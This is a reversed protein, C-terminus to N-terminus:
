QGELSTAKDHESLDHIRENLESFKWVRVPLTRASVKAIREIFESHLDDDDPCVIVLEAENRVIDVEASLKRVKESLVPVTKPAHIAAQTVEWELAHLRQTKKNIVNALRTNLLHVQTVIENVDPKGRLVTGFKWNHFSKIHTGESIPSYNKYWHGKLEMYLCLNRLPVGVALTQGAEHYISNLTSDLAASLKEEFDKITYRVTDLSQVNFQLIESDSQIPIIRKAFGSMLGFEFYINASPTTGVRESSSLVVICFRSEIIKTCVKECHIDRAPEYNEVAVYPSIGKALLVKRLVQLEAYITSPDPCAIFAINTSAFVRGCPQDRFVCKANRSLPLRAM